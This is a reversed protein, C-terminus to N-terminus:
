SRAQDLIITNVEAMGTSVLRLIPELAASPDRREGAQMVLNM